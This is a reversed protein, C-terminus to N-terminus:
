SRGISLLWDVAADSYPRLYKNALAIVIILIFLFGLRAIGSSTFITEGKVPERRYENPELDIQKMM